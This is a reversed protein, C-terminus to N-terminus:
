HPPVAVVIDSVLNGQVLRSEIDEISALATSATVRAHFQEHEQAALHKFADVQFVVTPLRDTLIPFYVLSM